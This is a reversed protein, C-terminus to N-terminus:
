RTGVLAKLAEIESRLEKLEAEHRRIIEHHYLPIRDYHICTPQQDKDYLVLHHLGADHLDEAAYGVSRNPDDSGRYVFSKPRLELIREWQDEFPRVDDYDRSSSSMYGLRGSNDDLRFVLKAWDGKPLWGFYLSNNAAIMHAGQPDQPWIETHGRIIAGSSLSAPGASTFRQHVTATQVEAIDAALTGSVELAASPYEVGIGVSGAFYADGHTSIRLMEYFGGDYNSRIGGSLLTVPSQQAAQEGSYLLRIEGRLLPRAPDWEYANTCLTLLSDDSEGSPTGGITCTGRDRYIDGGLEGWLSDGTYYTLYDRAHDARVMGAGEYRDWTSGPYGIYDTTSLLAAKARAPTLNPFAEKLLALAGSVVAAAPSTGGDCPIKNNHAPFYGQFDTPGLLDPKYPNWAGPGATSPQYYEDSVTAAAVTIVEALGNAGWIRAKDGTYSKCTPDPFVCGCNGAAFVMIIGNAVAQQVLRTFPHDRNQAYDPDSAPTCGWSNNIIHPTGDKAHRDLAWELCKIADSVQGPCTTRDTRLDYIKANPAAQLVDWAMASGHEGAYSVTGWNAPYGDVVNPVTGNTARGIALIGSDIVGVTVGDGKLDNWLATLGIREAVSAFPAIMSSESWCKPLPCPCAGAHKARRTSPLPTHVVQTDRWVARVGPQGRLHALNAEGVRGRVLAIRGAASRTERRGPRQSPPPLSVPDYERDLQFGAADLAAAAAWVDDTSAGPALLLEVMVNTTEAM